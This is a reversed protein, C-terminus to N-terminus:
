ITGSAVLVRKLWRDTGDMKPTIASRAHITNRNNFMLMDGKELVVRIYVQEASEQWSNDLMAMKASAAYEEHFLGDIGHSYITGILSSLQEQYWEIDDYRAIKTIAQKDERICLLGVWDARASYAGNEVHWDLENTSYPFQAASEGRVPYINQIHRNCPREFLYTQGFLAAIAGVLGDSFMPIHDAVFQRKPTDVLFDETPLNRLLGLDFQETEQKWGILRAPMLKAAQQCSHIFADFNETSYPIVVDDVMERIYRKEESTLTYYPQQIETIMM